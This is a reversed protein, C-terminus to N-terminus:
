PQAGEAAMAEAGKLGPADLVASRYARGDFLEDAAARALGYFRGAGLGIWLSIGAFVMIVAQMRRWGPHDLHVPVAPDQHWFAAMFIKLMSLLTLLGVGLAVVGFWPHGARFSDLVILAKGWFGSLPPLGALSLAQLLFLGGLWPARVWLNGMRDLRDSGNLAQATGGILFLSGKAFIQHVAFLLCAATAAPSFLGLALLMYGIQSVIHFSLISRISNKSLAGLVGLVMTPLALWLILQHVNDLSHPLATVLLRFLAYVGVKTLLASYLAVLAGPMMPYSDPLWYFLPFMGAKLGFVLVLMLALATVRPDGAMSAARVGLDAFNLTGFLSYALGCASVFLTSGFLNIALYPFAHRIAANEAELTMLAYSSILLVEFAVFLNFLDGTIFALSVGAALFQILPGRLPHSRRAPTEAYGYAVALFTSISAACLFLASMKDVALAIGLPAKWLGVNLSLPGQTFAEFAILLAVLMQVFFSLLNLARRRRSTRRAALLGVASLLPVLFPLVLLNNM